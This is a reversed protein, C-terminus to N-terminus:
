VLGKENLLEKQEEEEREKKKRGQQRFKENINYVELDFRQKVARARAQTSKQM